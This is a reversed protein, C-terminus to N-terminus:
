DPTIAFLEDHFAFLAGLNDLYARVEAEACLQDRARREAHGMAVARANKAPKGAGVTTLGDPHLNRPFENNTAVAQHPGAGAIIRSVPMNDKPAHRFTLKLYHQASKSGAKGNTNTTVSNGFRTLEFLIALSVATLSYQDPHKDGVRVVM